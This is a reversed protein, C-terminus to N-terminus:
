YVFPHVWGRLRNEYKALLIFRMHVPINAQIWFAGACRTRYCNNKGESQLKPGGTTGTVNRIVSGVGDGDGGLVSQLHM